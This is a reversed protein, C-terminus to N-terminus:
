LECIDEEVNCDILFKSMDLDDTVRGISDNSEQIIYGVEYLKTKCYEWDDVVNDDPADQSFYVSENMKLIIDDMIGLCKENRIPIDQTVHSTDKLVRLLFNLLQTRSTKFINNEKIIM